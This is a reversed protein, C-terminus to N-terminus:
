NITLNFKEPHELLIKVAKLFIDFDGLNTQIIEYMEESTIEAYFHTLRNRYGAMRLLSEDAFSKEIIGFEGLKKAIDKYETTRGGEIRSLVHAGINFVGELAERLRLKAVDFCDNKESIFEGIPMSGLQQLKVVDKMIGDMRPIISQLKLPLKKM